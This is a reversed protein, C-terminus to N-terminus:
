NFFSAHKLSIFSFHFIDEIDKFINCEETSLSINFVANIQVTVVNSTYVCTYYNLPHPHITGKYTYTHAIYKKKENVDFILQKACM